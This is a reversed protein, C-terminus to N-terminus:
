EDCEWDSAPVIVPKGDSGGRPSVLVGRLVAGHSTNSRVVDALSWSMGVSAGDELASTTMSIDSFVRSTPKIPSCGEAIASQTYGALVIFALLSLIFPKTNGASM